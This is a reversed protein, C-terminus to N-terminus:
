RITEPTGLMKGFAALQVTSWGSQEREVSDRLVADGAFLDYPELPPPQNTIEDMPEARAAPHASTAAFSVVGPAKLAAANQAEVAPAVPGCSVSMGVLTLCISSAALAATGRTVGASARSMIALPLVSTTSTRSVGSTSRLPLTVPATCTERPM